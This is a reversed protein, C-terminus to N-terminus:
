LHVCKNERFHLPTVPLPWEPNIEHCLCSIIGSRRGRRCDLWELACNRLVPYTEGKQLRWIAHLKYLFLRRTKFSLTAHTVLTSQSMGTGNGNGSPSVPLKSFSNFVGYVDVWGLKEFFIARTSSLRSVPIFIRTAKHHSFLRRPRQLEM